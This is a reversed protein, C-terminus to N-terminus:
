YGSANDMALEYADMARDILTGLCDECPHDECDTHKEAEECAECINNELPEGCEGCEEFFADENDEIQKTVDDVM